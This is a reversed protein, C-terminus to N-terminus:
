SLEAAMGKFWRERAAAYAAPQAQWHLFQDLIANLTPRAAQWTRADLPAGATFNAARAHQHAMGREFNAGLGSAGGIMVAAVAEGFAPASSQELGLRRGAVAALAAVLRSLADELPNGQPTERLLALADACALPPRDAWVTPFLGISFHALDFDGLADADPLGVQLLGWLRRFLGLATSLDPQLVIEPRPGDRLLLRCEIGELAQLQAPLTVEISGSRRGSSRIRRHGIHM